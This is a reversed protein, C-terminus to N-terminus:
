RKSRGVNMSTLLFLLDQIMGRLTPPHEVNGHTMTDSGTASLEQIEKAQSTVQNQQCPYYIFFSRNSELLKSTWHLMKLIKSETTLQQISSGPSRDLM